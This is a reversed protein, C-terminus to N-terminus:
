LESCILYYKFDTFSRKYADFLIKELLFEYSSFFYVDTTDLIFIFRRVQVFFFFDYM